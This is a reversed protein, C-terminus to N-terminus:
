GIKNIIALLTECYNKASCLNEIHTAARETLKKHLDDDGILTTIKAALDNADGSKFILGADGGAVLAPMAAISPVIVAARYHMAEAITLGFTEYATSCSVVIRAESYFDALAQAGLRGCFIVNPPIDAFQGSVTGAVRFEVTPLARAAAIFIDAGKEVSFRGVMGVFNGRKADSTPLKPLPNALVWMKAKDVGYAALTTSQFDSLTCIADLENFYGARRAWAGRAAFAVSGLVSGECKRKICNFERDRGGCRTCITGDTFFIGIPCILRFNHAFFITKVGGKHLVPIVSASIWPFLNHILAVDPKNDALIRAIDRKSRPSALASFFSVVRGWWHGRHEKYDREYVAVSHGAAALLSRQAAVVSEEGGPTRYRNHIILFKM